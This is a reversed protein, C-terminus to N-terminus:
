FGRTHTISSLCSGTTILTKRRNVGVNVLKICMEKLATNTLITATDSKTSSIYRIRRPLFPCPSATCLLTEGVSLLLHSRTEDPMVFISVEYYFGGKSELYEFYKSYAEGRWFDLDGIEFNSWVLVLHAISKSRDTKVRVTVYTTPIEETM